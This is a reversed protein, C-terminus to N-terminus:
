SLYKRVKSSVFATIVLIANHMERYVVILVKGDIRKICRYAKDLSDLKDPEVLCKVVFAKDIGRQKMRELAHFTYRIKM